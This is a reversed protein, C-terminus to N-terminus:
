EIVTPAGADMWTAMIESFKWTNGAYKAPRAAIYKLFNEVEPVTVAQMATFITKGKYPGTKIQVDPVTQQKAMETGTFRVDQVLEDLIHKEDSKSKLPIVRELSVINTDLVSQLVIGHKIVNFLPGQFVGPVQANTYLLNGAAPKQGPKDSRLAFYHYRGKILQCRGNAIMATSTDATSYVRRLVGMTKEPITIGEPLLVQVIQISDKEVIYDTIPFAMLIKEQALIDCAVLLLLSTLIQKLM